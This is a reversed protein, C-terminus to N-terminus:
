KKKAFVFEAFGLLDWFAGGSLVRHKIFDRVITAPFVLM